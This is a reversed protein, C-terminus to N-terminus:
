LINYNLYARIFLDPAGKNETEMIIRYDLNLSIILNELLESEAGIKFNYKTLSSKGWSCSHNVGIHLKTVYRIPRYLLNLHLHRVNQKQYYTFGKRGYDYNSINFYVTSEWQSNYVSKLSMGYSESEADKPM